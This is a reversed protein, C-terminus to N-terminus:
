SKNKNISFHKKEAVMKFTRSKCNMCIPLFVHYVKDYTKNEEELIYFYIFCGIQTVELNGEENLYITVNRENYSYQVFILTRIFGMFSGWKINTEVLTRLIYHNLQVM